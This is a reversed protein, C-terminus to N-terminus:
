KKAEESAGRCFTVDSTLSSMNGQCIAPVYLRTLHKGYASPVPPAPGKHFTEILSGSDDEDMTDVTVFQSPDIAM